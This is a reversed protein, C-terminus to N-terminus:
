FSKNPNIQDQIRIVKAPNGAVIANEPVDKVVVAGAGIIAGDSIHVNGVITVNIGIQVNNGISPIENKSTLGIKTGGHISFNEGIKVRSNILIGRPHFVAFGPGVEIHSPVDFGAKSAKKRYLYRWMLHLFACYKRGDYYQCMRLRRTIKYGSNFFRDKLPSSHLPYALRDREIWERLQKRDKIIGM